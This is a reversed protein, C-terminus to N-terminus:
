SNKFKENCYFVTSTVTDDGAKKAVTQVFQKMELIVLGPTGRESWM